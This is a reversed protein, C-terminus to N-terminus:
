PLLCVPGGSEITRRRAQGRQLGDRLQARPQRLCREVGDIIARQGQDQRAVVRACDADPGAHAAGQLRAAFHAQEPDIRVEVGVGGCGAVGAVDVPHGKGRQHAKALFREGFAATGARLEASLVQADDPHATELGLLLAEEGVM